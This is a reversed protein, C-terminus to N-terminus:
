HGPSSLPQRPPMNKGELCDKIATDRKANAEVTFDPFAVQAQRTCVDMSKWNQVVINGQQTALAVGPVALVILLAIAFRNMRECLDSM